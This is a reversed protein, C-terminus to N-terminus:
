DEFLRLASLYLGLEDRADKELKRLALAKRMWKPTFGEGKAEAYVDKIDGTLAAKELELREVRDLFATLRTVNLGNSPPDASM